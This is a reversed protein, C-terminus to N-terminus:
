FKSSPGNEWDQEKEKNGTGLLGEVDVEEGRQVREIVERLLAIKADTKRSFAIHDNRLGVMNIANSGILLFIVIFFTAPNWQKSVGSGVLTEANHRTKLFKPVISRWISPQAIRPLSHSSSTFPRSHVTRQSINPTFPSLLKHVRRSCTKFRINSM